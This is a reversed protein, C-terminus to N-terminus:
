LEYPLVEWAPFLATGGPLFAEVDAVLAEAEHPGPALALVPLELATALVALVFADGTEARAVIPRDRSLLLREFPESGVSARVQEALSM